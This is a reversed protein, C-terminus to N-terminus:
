DEAEHKAVDALARQHQRRAERESPTNGRRAHQHRAADHRHHEAHQEAAHEAAFVDHRRQPQAREFSGIVTRIAATMMPMAMM